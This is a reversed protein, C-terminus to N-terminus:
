ESETDSSPIYLSAPALLHEPINIMQGVLGQAVYAFTATRPVLDRRVVHNAFDELAAKDREQELDIAADTVYDGYLVVHCVLRDDGVHTDLLVAIRPGVKFVLTRLPHEHDGDDPSEDPENEDDDDDPLLAAAFRIVKVGDLKFKDILTETTVTSSVLV